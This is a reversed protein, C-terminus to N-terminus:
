ALLVDPSLSLSSLTFSSCVDGAFPPIQCQARAPVRNFISPLNGCGGDIVNFAAVVATLPARPPPFTSTLSSKLMGEAVDVSGCLSSRTFSVAAAFISPRPRAFLVTSCRENNLWVLRDESSSTAEIVPVGEGCALSLRCPSCSVGLPRGLSGIVGEGADLFDCGFPAIDSFVGLGCRMGFYLIASAEFIREEARM